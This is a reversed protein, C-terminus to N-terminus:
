DLLIGHDQRIDMVAAMWQRSSFDLEMFAMSADLQYYRVSLKPETRAAASVLLLFIASFLGLRLM